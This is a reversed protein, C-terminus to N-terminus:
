TEDDKNKQYGKKKKVRTKAGLRRVTKKKRAKTERSREKEITVNKQGM